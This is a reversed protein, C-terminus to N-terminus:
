DDIRIFECNLLNEIEKQRTLDKGKNGKHYDEDVEIALRIEPIYGDIFYGAILFQREIKYGWAKELNDLIEKENKGIRPKLPQGSLRFKEIYKICSERNKRNSEATHNKGTMGWHFGEEKMKKQLSKSANKSILKRTKESVIHGEPNKNGTLSKSIKNAWPIKRGEMSKGIKKRRNLESKSPNIKQKKYYKLLEKNGDKFTKKISESTKKNKEEPNKCGCEGYLLKKKEWSKRAIKSREEKSLKKKLTM